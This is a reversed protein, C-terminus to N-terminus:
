QVVEKHNFHLNYFVFLPFMSVAILYNVGETFSYLTFAFVGSSLEITRYKDVKLCKYFMYGYYAYLAIFGFLAFVGNAGLVANYTSHSPCVDDGNLLNMPYLMYNYTGFGRGLLWWGNRLLNFTNDWIYSRTTITTNDTFSEITKYIVSIFKGKSLYSAFVLVLGIGVLSTYSIALIKNRKKHEKYTAFLRVVLYLALTLISLAISTKCYSFVMNGLFFFMVLYWYWKHTIAHVIIAFIFGLMMCVGYPVRQAVFSSMSNAYVGDTDGSFLAKLFPIYKEGETIYSYMVLVLMFIFICLGCFCVFWMDKVRKSLLMFIIYFITTIILSAFTFFLYHSTSIERTVIVVDGNEVGPFFEHSFDTVHRAVEEISFHSPQVLVGVVSTVAFFVFLWTIIDNKINGKKIQLYFYIGWCIVTISGCTITMWDKFFLTSADTTVMFQWAFAYFPVSFLFGIALFLDSLDLELSKIYEKAKEIM